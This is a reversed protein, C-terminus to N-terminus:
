SSSAAAAAAGSAPLNKTLFVVNFEQQKTLLNTIIVNPYHSYLSDAPFLNTAVDSGSKQIGLFGGALVIVIAKGKPIVTRINLVSMWLYGNEYLQQFIACRKRLVQREAKLPTPQIGPQPLLHRGVFARFLEQIESETEGFRARLSDGCIQKYEAALAQDPSVVHAAAAAAASARPEPNEIDHTADEPGIRRRTNRRSRCSLCARGTGVMLAASAALMKLGMRCRSVQLLVNSTNGAAALAVCSPHFYGWVALSSLAETVGVRTVLWRIFELFKRLQSESVGHPIEVPKGPDRGGNGGDDEDGMKRKTGQPPPLAAM